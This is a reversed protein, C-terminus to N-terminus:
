SHDEWSIAKRLAEGGRPAETEAEEPFSERINRAVSSSAQAFLCSCSGARRALDQNRSVAELSVKVQVQPDPGLIWLFPSERMVPSISMVRLLSRILCVM